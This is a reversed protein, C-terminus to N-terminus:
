GLIARWLSALALAIAFVSLCRVPYDPKKIGIRRETWTVIAYAVAVCLYGRPHFPSNPDFMRGEEREHSAEKHREDTRGDPM